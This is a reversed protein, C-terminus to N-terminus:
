IAIVIRGHAHGEALYRIADAAEALPFARDVVPTISGAELLEKLVGLPIYRGEIPTRSDPLQDPCRKMKPPRPAARRTRYMAVSAAMRWLACMLANKVRRRSRPFFPLTATTAHM